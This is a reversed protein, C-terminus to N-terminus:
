PSPRPTPSDPGIPIDFPGSMSDSLAARHRRVEDLDIGPNREGISRVKLEEVEHHLERIEQFAQWAEDKVATGDYQPNKIIRDLVEYKARIADMTADNVNSDTM